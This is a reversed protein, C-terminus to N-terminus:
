SILRMEKSRAVDIRTGLHSSLSDLLLSANQREERTMTNFGAVYKCQLSAYRYMLPEFDSRTRSLRENIRQAESLITEYLPIEREQEQKKNTM